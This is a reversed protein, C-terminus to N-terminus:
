GALIKQIALAVGTLSDGAIIGAAIVIMFRTAWDKVKKMLLWALVGGLAMSISYFAPIVFAIGVATPSPVWPAWKKPLLKELVAALTGYLGGWIMAAVAGQPLNDIGGQFLEAVAKWQVVAPMAWDPDDWLKQLNAADGVLVLYGLCGCIAGAFVGGFQAYSQQRPSAGIMLGTKMDHLLDACQSAAGGTVNAAMLNASVNAGDAVGFTLQTVKGMAGVPTIGTEGSVRAAVIALVFTLLVALTALGWGIGFYVFQTIISAFCAVGILALHVSRPVEDTVVDAAVAGKKGGTLAAVVSRWSFSFSTLSATVMMAVGPWLLWTVLEKFWMGQGKAEIWRPDNLAVKTAEGDITLTGTVWGWEIVMPGLILWAAVAGVLMSLGARVGILAGTAVFLPSPSLVFTMNKLSSTGLAGPLTLNKIPIFKIALKTVVGVLGGVLLMKVREMAEAGKSYMEKITEGSAIGGPFPLADQILMQKRLGIAVVVGVLSVSLTWIILSVLSLEEGTILTWAPIPAVLGASSISAASSATTQNINNELMGWNRTQFWAETCRYFGYSLLAATISMNFGWGIKLGMYVNCLSLTGGILMGTIVARITLQPADLDLAPYTHTTTEQTAETM